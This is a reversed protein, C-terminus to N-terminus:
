HRSVFSRHIAIARSNHKSVINRIHISPPLNSTVTLGLDVVFSSQPLVNNDLQYTQGQLTAPNSIKVCDHSL